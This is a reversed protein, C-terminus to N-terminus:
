PGAQRFKLLAGGLGRWGSGFAPPARKYYLTYQDNNESKTITVGTTRHQGPLDNNPESPTPAREPARCSVGVSEM